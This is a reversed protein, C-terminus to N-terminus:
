GRVAACVLRAGSGPRLGDGRDRFYRAIAADPGLDDVVALGATDLERALEDPEFFTVWPEGAAAARAAM